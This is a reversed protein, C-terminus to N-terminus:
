TCGDARSSLCVDGGQAASGYGECSASTKGQAKVESNCNTWTASFFGARISHDSWSICCSQGGKSQCQSRPAQGVNLSFSCTTGSVCSLVGACSAWKVAHATAVQFSSGDRKRLATANGAITALMANVDATMDPDTTEFPKAYAAETM